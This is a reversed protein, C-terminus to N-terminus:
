ARRHGSAREKRQPHHNGPGSTTNHQSRSALERVALRAAALQRQSLRLERELSVVHAHEGRDLATEHALASAPVDGHPQSGIVATAIVVLLLATGCLGLAGYRHGIIRELIRTATENARVLVPTRKPAPPQLSAAHLTNQTASLSV